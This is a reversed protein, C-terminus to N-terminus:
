ERELHRIARLFDAGTKENLDDYEGQHENGM